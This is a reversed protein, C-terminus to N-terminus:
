QSKQRPSWSEFLFVPCASSSTDQESQPRDPSDAVSFLLANEEVKSKFFLLPDADSIVGVFSYEVMEKCSPCKDTINRQLDSKVKIRSGLQKIQKM